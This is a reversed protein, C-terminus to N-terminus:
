DAGVSIRSVRDRDPLRVLVALGEVAQYTIVRCGRGDRFGMQRATRLVVTGHAQFAVRGADAAGVRRIRALTRGALRAVARRGVPHARIRVTMDIVIRRFHLCRDRETHDVNAVHSNALRIAPGTVYLIRAQPRQGSGGFRRTISNDAQVFADFLTAIKEPAIGIGTDGVTWEVTAALATRDIGQVGITVEGQETFKVANAVLNHLVQRIRGADGLMAPPLLPDADLRITLGKAAAYPSYVSLADHALAAPSFPATEFTMRGADLKSFDLIDNLIRLLTDGSDRIAVVAERQDPTLPDDLLSSALGLVANMPTRIEHSMM